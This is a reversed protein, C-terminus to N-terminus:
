FTTLFFVKHIMKVSWLYDVGETMAGEDTKLRSFLRYGFYTNNSSHQGFGKTGIMIIKMCSVTGGIYQQFESTKM